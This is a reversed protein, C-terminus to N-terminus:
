RGPRSEPLSKILLGLSLSVSDSNINMHKSETINMHKSETIHNNMKM